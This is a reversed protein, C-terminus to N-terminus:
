NKNQKAGGGLKNHRHTTQFIYSEFIWYSKSSLNYKKDRCRQRKFVFFTKYLGLECV